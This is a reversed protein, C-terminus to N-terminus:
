QNWQFDFIYFDGELPLQPVSLQDNYAYLCTTNYLVIFVAEEQVKTFIRNYIEFREDEDIAVEADKFLQDIEPNSYRVNNAMGVYDSTLAMAYQQTTGELVMSMTTIGIGGNFMNQLLTNFEVVEITVNLGIAALDSQIVQAQTSYQDGVHMVGLDYPTEIGAEALLAKAKEPDYGYQPQDDSYGFRLPSIINSNVTGIGDMALDLLNQRDIAYAVAQRFKVNNFPEKEHNLSIFGFRSEPVEMISIGDTGELNAYNTESIKVFDIEKTKLSVAITADDALIRFTVDKISPAGRYYGEYAKLTITSGLEHSVFEYPGCGIPKNAFDEASASDHYAKSGIRMTAINELFPSFVNATHLVVTHDDVVEVSSLGDVVAGQYSSNSYLEASFKVDEATFPSGDHFKVDKRLHFTYSLGDESVEWTEALRPEFDHGSEPLYMLTDYIQESLINESTSAYDSPHLTTVDKDIAIIISDKAATGTGTGTGACGALAAVLALILITATIKRM